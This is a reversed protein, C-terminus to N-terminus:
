LKKMIRWHVFLARTLEEGDLNHKVNDREIFNRRPGTKSDYSRPLLPPKHRPCSPPPGAMNAAIIIWSLQAQGATGGTVVSVILLGRHSPSLELEECDGSLHGNALGPGSFNLKSPLSFQKTGRGSESGRSDQHNLRIKVTSQQTWVGHCYEQQINQSRQVDSPRVVSWQCWLAAQATNHGAARM